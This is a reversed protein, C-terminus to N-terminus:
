RTTVVTGAYHRQFATRLHDLLLRLRPTMHEKHPFVASITGEETTWEPLVRILRGERLDDLVAYDPLLGVLSSNAVFTRAAVGTNTRVVSTIKVSRQQGDSKIMELREPHPLQTIIVWPMAALDEPKEPMPHRQAYDASVCPILRFSGLRVAYLRSEKLWGTRLCLDFGAEIINSITDEVALEIEVKPHESQYDALARILFNLSLNYSASIRVTGRPEARLEDVSSLAAEAQETMLLCAEYFRRGEETLSFSRPSRNILQANISKELTLVHQSVVSKGLGLAVAARSFSGCEVVKTFVAMRYLDRLIMAPGAADRGIARPIEVPPEGAPHDAPRAPLDVSRACNLDSKM